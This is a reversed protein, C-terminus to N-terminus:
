ENTLEGEEKFTVKPILNITVAGALEEVQNLASSKAREYLEDYNAICEKSKSYLQKMSNIYADYGAEADGDFWKRQYEAILEKQEEDIFMDVEPLPITIYCYTDDMKVSAKRLDIAFILKGKLLYLAKYTKEGVEHMNKLRVTAVLVQLNAVERIKKEIFVKTDKASLGEERGDKAGDAIGKTFGNYTGVVKGAFGGAVSGVDSGFDQAKIRIRLCFFLVIILIILIVFPPAKKIREM